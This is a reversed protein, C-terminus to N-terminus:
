QFAEICLKVKILNEVNTLDRSKVGILVSSKLYWKM